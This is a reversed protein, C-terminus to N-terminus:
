RWQLAVLASHATRLSTASILSYLHSHQVSFSYLSNWYIPCHLSAVNLFAPSLCSGQPQCVNHSNNHGACLLGKNLRDIMCSAYRPFRCSHDQHGGRSCKLWSSAPHISNGMLDHCFFTRKLRRFIGDSISARANSVYCLSTRM